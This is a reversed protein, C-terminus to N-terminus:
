GSPVAPLVAIGPNPRRPRFRLYKFPHLDLPNGYWGAIRETDILNVASAHSIPVVVASELLLREAEALIHLREARGFSTARILAEDYRSNAFRADNLNSDSAWMGLFTLPDPYDGVWTSLGVTYFSDDTRGPDAFVEVDLEREWTRELVEAIRISEATGSIRIRVPPLSRGGAYGADALLRHAEGRNQTDIGRHKPYGPIRPVLVSTSRYYRGEPRLEDLPLLLVLARRVNPDNWPPADTRFYLYSTSFLTTVRIADTNSVLDPAFENLAWDIRGSNFARSTEEPGLGRRIVIRPIEVSDRDWYTPSAVLEYDGEAGASVLRYPGNGVVISDDDTETSEKRGSRYIPVLAHHALAKLFSPEPHELEIELIRAARARIGVSEPDTSEGLRYARAGVVPDLLFSYEFALDPSLLRLWSARFDEALVAEGTEFRAETRLYFTIHRADESIEWSTAVGPVPELTLRDYGVLGEHLATFLQAETSGTARQPDLDIERSSISVTLTNAAVGAALFLVPLVFGVTRATLRIRDFM